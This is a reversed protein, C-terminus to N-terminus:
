KVKNRGEGRRFRTGNTLNGLRGDMEEKRQEKDRNREWINRGQMENREEMEERKRMSEEVKTWKREENGM